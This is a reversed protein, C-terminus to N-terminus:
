AVQADVHAMNAAKPYPRSGAPVSVPLPVRLVENVENSTPAWGSVPGSVRVSARNSVPQESSFSRSPHPGQLQYRPSLHSNALALASRPSQSDATMSSRGTTAGSLQELCTVTSERRSDPFRTTNTMTSHRSSARLFDGRRPPQLVNSSEVPIEAVYQPANMAVHVEGRDGKVALEDWDAYIASWAPASLPVHAEGRDDKVVLEGWDAYVTRNSVIHDPRDATPALVPKILTQALAAATPQPSLAKRSV